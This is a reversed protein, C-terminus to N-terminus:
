FQLFIFFSFKFTFLASSSLGHPLVNAFLTNYPLIVPVSSPFHVHVGMALWSATQLQYGSAFSNSNEGNSDRQAWSSCEFTPGTGLLRHCIHLLSLPIKTSKKDWTAKHLCEKTAKKTKQKYIQNGKKYKQPFTEHTFKMKNQTDKNQKKNKLASFPSLLQALQCSPLTQSSNTSYFIHDSYITHFLFKWYFFIFFLFSQFFMGATISLLFLSESIPLEGFIGLHAVREWTVWFM